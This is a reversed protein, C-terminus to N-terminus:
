KLAFRAGKTCVQSKWRRLQTEQVGLEAAVNLTRLGGAEIQEAAPRKFEDPVGRRKARGDPIRDM